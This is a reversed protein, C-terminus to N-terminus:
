RCPGSLAGRHVHGSIYCDIGETWLVTKESNNIAAGTSGGGTGHQARICYFNRKGKSNKGVKVFMTACYRRYLHHLNLATAVGYLPDIGANVYTRLEHNGPVICLIRDAVRSLYELVIQQQDEPQMTAEYSNTKSIKLGNDMLDGCVVVYVNPNSLIYKIVSELAEKNFFPSGVHWDAFIVITAKDADIDPWDIIAEDPLVAQTKAKNKKDDDVPSPNIASIAM